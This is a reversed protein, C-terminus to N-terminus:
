VFIVSCTEATCSPCDRSCAGITVRWMLKKADHDYFVRPQPRSDSRDFNCVKRMEQVMWRLYRGHRKSSGPGRREGSPLVVYNEAMTDVQLQMLFAATKDLATVDELFPLSADAARSPAAIPSATGTPPSVIGPRGVALPRAKGGYQVIKTRPPARHREAAVADRGSGILGRHFVTPDPRCNGSPNPPLLSQPSSWTRESPTTTGGSEKSRERRTPRLLVWRWGTTTATVRSGCRSTGTKGFGVDDAVLGGACFGVTPRYQNEKPLGASGLLLVPKGSAVNTAFANTLGASARSMGVWALPAPSSEGSAGGVKGGIADVFVCIDVVHWSLAMVEALLHGDIPM